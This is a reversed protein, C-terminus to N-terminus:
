SSQPIYQTCVYRRLDRNATHCELVALWCFATNKIVAGGQIGHASVQAKISHMDAASPQVSHRKFGYIRVHGNVYLGCGYM